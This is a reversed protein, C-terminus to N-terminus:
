SSHFEASGTQAAINGVDDAALRHVCNKAMAIVTLFGTTRGELGIEKESRTYTKGLVLVAELDEL